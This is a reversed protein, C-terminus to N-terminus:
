GYHSKWGLVRRHGRHPLDQSTRCRYERSTRLWWHHLVAFSQDIRRPLRESTDDGVHGGSDPGSSPIQRDVSRRVTLTCRGLTSPQIFAPIREGRVKKPLHWDLNHINWQCHRKWNRSPREFRWCGQDACRSGSSAEPRLLIDLRSRFVHSDSRISGDKPHDEQLLFLQNHCCHPDPPSPHNSLLYNNLSPPLREHRRHENGNRHCSSAYEHHPDKSARVHRSYPSLPPLPDSGHCLLPLIRFSSSM